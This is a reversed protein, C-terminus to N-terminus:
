LGRRPPFRGDGAARQLRGPSFWRKMHEASSWAKFVLERPAAFSRSITLKEPKEGRKLEAAQAM